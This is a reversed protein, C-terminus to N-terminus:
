RIGCITVPSSLIPNWQSYSLKFVVVVLICLLEPPIMIVILSGMTWTISLFLSRHNPRTMLLSSSDISLTTIWNFLFPFLGLPFVVHSSLMSRWWFPFFVDKFSTRRVFHKSFLCSQLVNIERDVSLFAPTSWQAWLLLPPSCYANNEEGASWSETSSAWICSYMKNRCTHSKLMNSGVALLQNRSLPRWRHLRTEEVWLYCNGVERRNM